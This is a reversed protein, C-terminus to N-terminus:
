RSYYEVVAQPDVATGAEERSPLAIVKGELRSFDFALWSPFDKKNKLFQLKEKVYNRNKKSESLSVTNGVKVLSSPIDVKRGNVRFYGHGVLQQALSRSGAFGLRYVINDLRMELRALFLDGTVGTKKKVENFHKRFQRERIGYIRKVKQKMALQKGYESLARLTKKGHTGPPYNKRVMACKPSYCRDGKLFLKEGARRCKRCKSKLERSM